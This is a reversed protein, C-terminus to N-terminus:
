TSSVSVNSKPDSDPALAPAPVPDSSSTFSGPSPLQSSGANAASLDFQSQVYVFGTVSPGNLATSLRLDREEQTDGLAPDHANVIQVMHDNYLVWKDTSKSAQAQDVTSTPSAPSSGSSVDPSGTSSSSPATSFVRTVARYHGGGLSGDHYCIGALDYHCKNAGYGCVYESLDLDNLPFQVLRGDKLGGPMGRRLTIFLVRPLSWIVSQKRVPRKYGHAEDFWANERDMVESTCYQDFCQKLTVAAGPQFPPCPPMPLDICFFSDPIISLPRQEGYLAAKASIAASFSAAPIRDNPLPTLMSVSVGYCLDYIDSYSNQYTKALFNYCATAIEDRKNQQEGKIKIQVPRSMGQHFEEVIFQLCEMADQQEGPQPNFTGSQSHEMLARIFNSPNRTPQATIEGNVVDRGDAKLLEAWARAIEAGKRQKEQYKTKTLEPDPTHTSFRDIEAANKSLYAPDLLHRLPSGKSEPRFQPIASLLQIATNLYCTNGVNFIGSM